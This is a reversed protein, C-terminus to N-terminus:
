NSRDDRHPVGGRARIVTAELDSLDAAMVRVDGGEAAEVCASGARVAVPTGCAVAEAVTMGYTEEASPQVHLDAATYASALEECSETRGIGVVQKPLQRIQKKSLGVLVVAYRDDLENALRVFDGLGKREGWTSAVGLVMFRDGIGHRERFDSPTPRFVSADVTNRRVEVPYKSLFSQKVLGELWHSPTILTMRDPPLLNFVRRKDEFSRACSRKSLTRPYTDLQPCPEEYACRFRWQACKAYTFYACHGTFAWCDHLTWRVQCHHNALWGFLIEVNVYYGHLNHLHVVDPDIEGLKKLLRRTAARSRFGARGDLRTQLVDLCLEPKSGFNFEHESEAARGRGWCAFSEVGRELLERHLRLMIGGTSGNPVSNVHVYRLPRGLGEGLALAEDVLADTTPTEGSATM